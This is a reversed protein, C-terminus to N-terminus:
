TGEEEDGPEPVAGVPGPHTVRRVINDAVRAGADTDMEDSAATLLRPHRRIFELIRTTLDPGLYNCATVLLGLVLEVGAGEGEGILEEIDAAIQDEIDSM